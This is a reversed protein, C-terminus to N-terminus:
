ENDNDQDEIASPSNGLATSIEEPEIGKEKQLEKAIRIEEYVEELDRGRASVIEFPSKLLNAMNDADAKAEKLPDIPPMGPEQWYASEYRKPDTPYGPLSLVGSAVAVRLFDKFIPEYFHRIHRAIVPKAEQAFDNRKGRLVTYNLGDYDGSIIEYPLGSCISFKRLLLKVYPM